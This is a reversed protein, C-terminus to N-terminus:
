AESSAQSWKYDNRIIEVVNDEVQHELNEVQCKIIEFKTKVVDHIEELNFLKSDVSQVGEELLENVSMEMLNITKKFDALDNDSLVIAEKLYFRLREISKTGNDFLKTKIVEKLKGYLVDIDQTAMFDEEEEGGEDHSETEEYERKIKKTDMKERKSFWGERTDKSLQSDKFVSHGPSDGVVICSDWSIIRDKSQDQFILCLLLVVRVM